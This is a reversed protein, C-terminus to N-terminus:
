AHIENLFTWLVAGVAVGYKGAIENEYEKRWKKKESKGKFMEKMFKLHCISFRFVSRERWEENHLAGSVSHWWYKVFTFVYFLTTNMQFNQIFPSRVVLVIGIHANIKMEHWLFIVNIPRKLRQRHVATNNNNNINNNNYNNFHKNDNGSWLSISSSRNTWEINAQFVHARQKHVYIYLLSGIIANSMFCFPLLYVRYVLTWCDYVVCLM